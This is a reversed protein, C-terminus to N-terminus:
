PSDGLDRLEYGTGEHHRCTGGNMRIRSSSGYSAAWSWQESANRVCGVPALCGFFM